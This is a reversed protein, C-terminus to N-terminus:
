PGGQPTKRAARRLRSRGANPRGAAILQKAQDVLVNALELLAEAASPSDPNATVFQELETSAKDFLATREDVDPTQRAEAILTIGRHYPIRERFAADALPSTEMQTLYDLALDYLGRERLGAVFEESQERASRQRRVACGPRWPRWCTRM